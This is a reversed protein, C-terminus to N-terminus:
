GGAGSAWGRSSPVAASRSRETSAVAWFWIGATLVVEDGRLYSSPDPMASSHVWRIVRDLDGTFLPELKLRPHSLLEGVTIPM